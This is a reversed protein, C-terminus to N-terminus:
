RVRLNEVIESQIKAAEQESRGEDFLRGVTAWDSGLYQYTTLDVEFRGSRDIRVCGVQVASGSRPRPAVAWTVGNADKVFKPPAFHHAALATSTASELRQSDQHTQCAVCLLAVLSLGFVLPKMKALQDLQRVCLWGRRAASAQAASQREVPGPQWPNDPM